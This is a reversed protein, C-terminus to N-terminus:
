FEVHIECVSVSTWDNQNTGASSRLAVFGRYWEVTFVQNQWFYKLILDVTWHM